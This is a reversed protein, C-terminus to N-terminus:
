IVAKQKAKKRNVCAMDLLLLISRLWLTVLLACNILPIPHILPDNINPPTSVTMPKTTPPYQNTILRRIKLSNVLTEKHMPTM